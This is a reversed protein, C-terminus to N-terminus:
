DSAATSESWWEVPPDATRNDASGRVPFSGSITQTLQLSLKKHFQHPTDFEEVLGAKGCAEKFENLAAYQEQDVTDPRAVASSFYLLAPKGQRTHAEIADLTERMSTSVSPGASASVLSGIRTWFVAILLDCGTLIERNLFPRPAEVSTRAVPLNPGVAFLVQKQQEANARNWEDLVGRIMDREALVDGPSAIMVKVVQADFPM